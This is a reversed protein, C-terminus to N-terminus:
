KANNEEKAIYESVLSNIVQLITIRKLACIAKLKDRLDADILTPVTVTKGINLTEM